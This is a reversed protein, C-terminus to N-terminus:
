RYTFFYDKIWFGSFSLFRNRMNQSFKDTKKKVQMKGKYDSDEDDDPPSPLMQFLVRLIPRLCCPAKGACLVHLMTYGSFLLLSGALLAGLLAEWIQKEAATNRRRRNQKFIEFQQDVSKAVTHQDM